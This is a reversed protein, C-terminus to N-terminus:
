KPAPTLSLPSMVTTARVSTSEGYAQARDVSITVQVKPHERMYATAWQGDKLIYHPGQMTANRYIASLPTNCKNPRHRSVPRHNTRVSSLQPDAPLTDELTQLGPEPPSPGVKFSLHRRRRKQTRYCEICLTYPKTNWGRAGKKYLQFLRQCLPCRFQKSRDPLNHSERRPTANRRARHDADHLRQVASVFTVEIPPVANRAMKKSEVLAVIENVARTLLDASGFIEWRIEDDAIGNLLTDWIMHDTYNIKLGCTCDITFACTDAKGCVRAAFARFPEDRLQRM